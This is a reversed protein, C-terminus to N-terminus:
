NYYVSDDWVILELVVEWCFESLEKLTEVYIYIYIFKLQRKLKFYNIIGNQKRKLKICNEEVSQTAEKTTLQRGNILEM